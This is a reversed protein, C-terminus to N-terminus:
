CNPMVQATATSSDSTTESVIVGNSQENNSDPPCM